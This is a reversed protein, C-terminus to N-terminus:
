GQPAAPRRGMGMAPCWRWAESRGAGRQCAPQRRGRSARLRRQRLAARRYRRLHVRRRGRRGSGRTPRASETQNRRSCARAGRWRRRCPPPLTPHRRPAHPPLPSRSLRRLGGPCRARTAAPPGVPLNRDTPRCRRRSRSRRGRGRCGRGRRRPHCHSTAVITRGAPRPHLRAPPRSPKCDATRHRRSASASWDWHWVSAPLPCPQRHDHGGIQRHRHSAFPM